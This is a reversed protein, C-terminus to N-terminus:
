RRWTGWPNLLAPGSFGQRKQPGDLSRGGAGDGIVDSADHIM